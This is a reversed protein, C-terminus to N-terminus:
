RAGACSEGILQPVLMRLVDSSFPQLSSSLRVTIPAAISTVGVQETAYGVFGFGRSESTRPDSVIRSETVQQTYVVIPMFRLSSSLKMAVPM